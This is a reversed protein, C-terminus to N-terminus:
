GNSVGWPGHRNWLRSAFQLHLKANSGYGLQQIATTKVANFGADRYDLTRLVSFPLALVVHDAVVSFRSSANQFTLTFTGDRRRQVARLATHLRVTGPPLAAAVARPLSENGGVLHYREDSEGFLGFGHGAPQYALLYILNLSSQDPTDAGYEVNYAVDLLQG